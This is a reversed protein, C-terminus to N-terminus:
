RKHPVPTPVKVGPPGVVEGNRDLHLSNDGRPLPVTPGNCAYSTGEGCVGNTFYSRKTVDQPWADGNVAWIQLPINFLGLYVVNVAGVVALFRLWTKRRPTIKLDHVGREALTEGKDNHFFRLSAWGVWLVAAWFTEYLPIQYYHGAFLTWESKAGSYTYIGTRSWIIECLGEIVFLVVVSGVLLKVNGMKPWRAKAKRMAKNILICGAGFIVPYVGAMFLLPEATGEGNASVWGPIHPGWSGLNLYSSNYVFGNAIYNYLPDQWIVLLFALFFMGDFTLHGARRRARIVFYWLGWVAALAFGAQQVIALIEMATPVPSPGSDVPKADGGFIWAGWVYVALALFFAGAAAWVAVPQTKAAVDPALVRRVDPVLDHREATAM